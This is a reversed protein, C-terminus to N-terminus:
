ERAMDAWIGVRALPECGLRCTRRASVKSPAEGPWVATSKAPSAITPCPVMAAMGQGPMPHRRYHKPSPRWLKTRLRVAVTENASLADAARGPEGDTPSKSSSIAFVSCSRRLATLRRSPPSDAAAMAWVSPREVLHTCFHVLRQSGSTPSQALSCFSPWPSRTM